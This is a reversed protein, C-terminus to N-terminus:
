HSTTLLSVKEERDPSSSRHLGASCVTEHLTLGRSATDSASTHPITLGSIHVNNESLYNNSQYKCTLHLNANANLTCFILM